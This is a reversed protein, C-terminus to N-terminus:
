QPRGPQGPQDPQRGPGTLARIGPCTSSRLFPSDALTEARGLLLSLDVSGSVRYPQSLLVGGLTRRLRSIEARVSVVHEPDGHVARSLAAATLGAPGALHLLLLIEAHRVTLPSRWQRDGATVEVAPPGTLDLALAVRTEGGVPRVLWGSGVPEPMCLGLGPVTLPRESRPAAIRNPAAIGATQAVWGHDDVLLLPGTASALMPAAATRLRELAREHHRWLQSEALRVATEVLAIVAPHLSMAPGSVDVIGLLEGTRPDHLPVATCYWPHQEQEFHEASFLQVPSAEALATGIANTGVLEETWEAGEEFGLGDARSRVRAAGDRWLVVGDADTVVMLFQSADAASCIVQRLEDVVLSIPSARRRGLVEERPLPARPNRSDPDLGAELVRSWSRAVLARPKLASRGGAIVADHMRVLERAYSPLDTGARVASFDSV